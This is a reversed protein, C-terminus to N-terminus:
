KIISTLLDILEQQTINEKIRVDKLCKSIEM